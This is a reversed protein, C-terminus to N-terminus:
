SAGAAVNSAHLHRVSWAGDAGSGDRALVLTRRGFTAGLELHFTVVVVDDGLEQVDVDLPVLDLYPPGAAPSSARMADFVAAFGDRVEGRGRCRRPLDPSPLIASAGDAWLALFSELDLANLAGVFRELLADIEDRSM